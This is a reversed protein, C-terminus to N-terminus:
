RKPNGMMRRNGPVPAKTPDAPATNPDALVARDAIPLSIGSARIFYDEKTDQIKVGFSHVGATLSNSRPFEVIYRNRVLSVFEKLSQAVAKPATTRVMGGSLECLMMFHDEQDRSVFQLADATAGTLGFVAVGQSDAYEKVEKWPHKSGKDNGDTIALIVRRGPQSALRSIMYMVSDLLHPSAACPSNKQKGPGHVTPSQLVHSVALQLQAPEPQINAATLVLHCDVGYISVRDQSRLSQPALGSIANALLPLMGKQDGSLDLLIALAIPDSGEIRAYKVPFEPGSDISVAFPLPTKAPLSHRNEDLVLVPIQILNSYSHFVPEKYGAAVQASLIAADLVLALAIGAM